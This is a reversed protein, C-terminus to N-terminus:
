SDLAETQPSCVPIFLLMYTYCTYKNQNIRNEEKIQYKASMIELFQLRVIGVDLVEFIHCCFNHLYFWVTSTLIGHSM